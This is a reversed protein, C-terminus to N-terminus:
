GRVLKGGNITYHDFAEVTVAATGDTQVTITASRGSGPFTLQVVGDATSTFTVDNTNYGKSLIKSVIDNFHTGQTCIDTISIGRNIGQQVARETEALAANVTEADIDERMSWMNHAVSAALILIIAMCIAIELLTFGKNYRRKKM